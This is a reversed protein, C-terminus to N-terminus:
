KSKRDPRESKLKEMGEELKESFANQMDQLDVLSVLIKTGAPCNGKKSTVVVMKAIQEQAGLAERARILDGATLACTEQEAGDKLVDYDDSVVFLHKTDQLLTELNAPLKKEHDRIAQDVQDRIQDKLDDTIQPKANADQAAQAAGQAANAALEARNAAQDAQAVAAAQNERISDAILYDTLWYSPGYYTPYPRFYYGYSPYWPDSMWGWHYYVPTWPHYCYGYFWPDYSVFPMYSHYAYGGRYYPTYYRNVTTNNNTVYSRQIYNQGDRQTARQTYTPKGARSVTHSGDDNFNTVSKGRAVQAVTGNKRYQVTKGDSKMYEPSGDARYKIQHNGRDELTGGDATQTRKHNSHV